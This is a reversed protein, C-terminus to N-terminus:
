KANLELIADKIKGLAIKLTDLSATYSLRVHFRGNSGFFPYGPAMLVGAKRVLHKVLRASTMKFEEINPFVYFAGKPEVFRIDPIKNLNALVLKRREDYERVMTEVCKQSGELAALAAYQAISNVCLNSACSVKKMHSIVEEPGIAYGIRWGTMAYTKSFSNVLVTRSQMEPFETISLFEANDYVFKEYVEDSIVFLENDIAIEAIAKLTKREFVTGTPNNPSSVIIVKTKSTVKQNLEDIDIAFDYDERLSVSVPKGGTVTVARIYGPYSPNQIIVKDGPDILSMCATFLAGTAGSTVLVQEESIDVKTKKDEKEAIARRLAPIGEDTTYHTHGGRLAKEAARVIHEPTDFDPEGVNLYIVNELGEALKSVNLLSFSKLRMTREAVM